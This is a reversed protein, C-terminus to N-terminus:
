IPQGFSYGKAKLAATMKKRLNTLWEPEHDWKEEMSKLIRVYGYLNSFRRFAPLFTELDNSYEYQTLYGDLFSQKKQQFLEMPTYDELSDLAQEIDMGYWHYMADDFDIVYCSETDEDYFVNDYEFDYHILGYNHSSKPVTAFYARLLKIEKRAASEDPNDKVMEDMWDLVDSYSWRKYDGPTYQSSLYHLRGLAKGYSFIIEDSFDTNSIQKGPVHQFASAYYEGWPTSVEILKEGHKSPTSELVGYEKGRLYSIFDLEAVINSKMKEATPAFRLIQAKGESIYPYIANSSIRYDKFLEESGEDFSWNKLIMEALDENNFLYKLQLM